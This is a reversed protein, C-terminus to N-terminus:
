RSRWEIPHHPRYGLLRGARSGDMVGGFHFQRRALDYRFEFGIAWARLRYLPALLPGPVPLDRRGAAAIMGSLPMTDAGPVNFVGRAPTALALRLADVCDDVSLVNIMPDYGAPRLCVPSQLYDWLQSRAGPALLEACRLVVVHLPSEGIRACATLDAEVRDRVPAPAAPDFELPQDEDLVSPGSARVAYVSASSRLVFRRISPHHECGLLLERTSTVDLAHARDRGLVPSRNLPQHVVADIGLERAPGFLLDHVARPRTLDVRRYDLRPDTPLGAPAPERGVALVRDVEGGALLARVLQAAPTATAASVLLKM